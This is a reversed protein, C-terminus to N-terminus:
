AELNGFKEKAKKLFEADEKSLYEKIDLRKYTAGDDLMDLIHYFFTEGNSKRVCEFGSSSPVEKPNGDWRKTPASSAYFDKFDLLNIIRRDPYKKRLINIAEEITVM